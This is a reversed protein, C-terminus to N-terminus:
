QVVWIVYYYVVVGAFVISDIRDLFGGHGPLAKGSDKVGIYRKFASELLDGTQGFISILIGLMVAQGWTIPLGLTTSLTFFLSVLIAAATGGAAGEWTKGPSIKPAMRHRGLLRGTFYAFTDYGFTVFLALFVWNRGEELGRIAVLHSLAWGTVLIGTFTFFGTEWGSGAGYRKRFLWIWAFPIVLAVLTLAPFIFSPDFVKDILKLINIDRIIILLFAMVVLYVSFIRRKSASVLGAFERSALIGLVAVLITFWPLFTDFWIAAILVPLGIVATIFRQKLM